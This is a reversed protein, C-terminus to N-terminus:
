LTEYLLDIMSNFIIPFFMINIESTEFELGIKKSITAFGQIELLFDRNQAVKLCFTVM